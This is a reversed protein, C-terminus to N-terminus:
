VLVLNDRHILERGEVFGLISEIESSPKRMIRRTEGSTYNSLGRAVPEGAENVCTIVAGRGFEGKVEVVGIPLLSKGEGTLKLVAGADLVVQGATHLHDAMWQKRATLHGTQAALETGISEGSALRALVEHERGYAIVTHAGSKAARKAALIKTLMGGRGLSSGAGGAMAELAADGARGHQILVASPDKRPDASFLGQQDTLIILADAEILNAVLAGLTDNDGFKIEDTVVTDNENIIPVVGLRLLTTLTSRANLYRERDALDAHTLLVQATGLQHARFSTEYIQALGMQGVAACAQLEHIDTPRQEFGLRLMGEAIAGSSVLVVQKGLARLGAIQAAWRAIAAHDLGRGDNTVLSSGVKIIIRNAKQIVSNM